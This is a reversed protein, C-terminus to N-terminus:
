LFLYLPSINAYRSPLARVVIAYIYYKQDEPITRKRMSESLIESKNEDLWM